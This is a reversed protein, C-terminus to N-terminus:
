DRLGFAQSGPIETVSPLHINKKEFCRIEGEEVKKNHELWGPNSLAWGHPHRGDETSPGGTGLRMEELVVEVSVWFDYSILQRPIGM